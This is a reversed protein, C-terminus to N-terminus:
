QPKPDLQVLVPKWMQQQTRIFEKTEVVSMQRTYTGLDAFNKNLEQRAVITALDRALKSMIVQDTRAPAVLAFWGIAQFGPLTEAVTPVDPFDPLRKESALALLKLQGGAVLGQLSPLSEIIMQIRGGLIDNAAQPTGAYPVNTLKAGSRTRFLEGTLHPLSGVGGLAAWNIGERQKKSYAILEQISNVGLSSNVAIAMPQEGVFGAPVLDRSVDFPLDRYLEPMSVFISTAPMFLTYGDPLATAAARAAITGGAGPQNL